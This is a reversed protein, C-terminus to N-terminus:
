GGVLQTLDLAGSPATVNVPQNFASFTLQTGFQTDARTDSCAANRIGGPRQSGHSVVRLPYPTGTTAVYFTIPTSGPRNGHDVIEVVPQGDVSTTGADTITGHNEVICRSLNQMSLGRMLADVQGVIATPLKLWRNAAASWLPDSGVGTEQWFVRNAKVYVVGGVVVATGAAAGQTFALTANSPPKAALDITTPRYSDILSGRVHVSTVLKLAAATDKLIQLPPKSAEGLAKTTASATHPRPASVVSPGTSLAHHHSKTTSGRPGTSGSSGSISCAPSAVACTPTSGVAPTAATAGAAQTAATAGVAAHTQPSSGGGCGSLAAVSAGIVLWTVNPRRRISQARTQKLGIVTGVAVHRETTAKDGVIMALCITQGAGAAM